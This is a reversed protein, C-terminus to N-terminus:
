EVILKKTTSFMQGQLRIFYIGSPYNRIDVEVQDTTVDTSYLIRGLYDVVSLKDVNLTNNIYVMENAPNPYITINEGKTSNVETPSDIIAVGAEKGNLYATIEGLQEKTIKGTTSKLKMMYLAESSNIGGTKTSYSTFRIRDNYAISMIGDTVKTKEFGEAILKASYYSEAILDLSYIDRNKCYIPISIVGNGDNMAEALNIVVAEKTSKLNRSPESVWSGDVDGLMVGHYLGGATINCLGTSTIIPQQCFDVNPIRFRYYGVGDNFPYDASISYEPLTLTQDDIFLWDKSPENALPYNWTQPYEDTARLFRNQIHTIDGAEITGNYNVDMAVAQYISPTFGTVMTTVQGTLYCDYGNIIPAVETSVPIDREINIKEGLTIDYEFYGYIDPVSAGFTEIECNTNAGHVFTPLYNAGNDPDYGIPSNADDWYILRGELINDDVIKAYGFDVCENKIELQYSEVLECSTFYVTKEKTYNSTLSFEVCAIEGSGTFQATPDTSEYFVSVYVKGPHDTHNIYYAADDSGRTVVRGISANGTPTVYTPDYEICFDMGIIGPEIDEKVLLPICFAPPDGILEDCSLELKGLEYKCEEFSSQIANPLGLNSIEGELYAYDAEYNCAAGLKNPEHIVDLYEDGPKNNYQGDKAIYIKEDPAIQFQGNKYKSSFTFQSAQIDTATLNFQYITNQYAEGAYLLNGNPSFELGKIRDYNNYLTQNYMIQGTENNFDLLDLKSVTHFPRVVVALKNGDPSMKMIGYVVPSHKTGASIRHIHSIGDESVLFVNFVDNNYEHNIIWFDKKNKHAVATLIESQRNPMLNVNKELFLINGSPEIKLRSYNLGNDTEKADTTIIYYNDNTGPKPVIMTGQAGSYHGLLDDAIENHNQDYVHVGETYFLLEGTRFDTMVACGERSQLKGDTLGIPPVDKTAYSFDLGAGDDPIGPYRGSYGGFYWINGRTHLPPGTSDVVSVYFRKTIEDDGMANTVKLTVNYRGPKNYQVTPNELTSTSPVGGPFDWQWSHPSGFSEDYFTITGNIYVAKRDSSFDAYVMREDTVNFSVIHNSETINMIPMDSDEGDRSKAGPTTEDTFSTVSAGFPDGAETATTQIGDAEEIDLGQNDTLNNIKNAKYYGNIRANDVHYILMGHGPLHEDWTGAIQQRNELMFVEDSTKTRFFYGERFQAINKLSYNGDDKLEKPELWGLSRKEWVNLAAPTKGYNNWSGAAMLDWHGTGTNDPKDDTDYFDPLGLMHGFEHCIVGISTIESLYTEPQIIYQSIKVGDYELKESSIDKNHSWIHDANGTSEQGPGQHIIAIGDVKGDRDNDFDSFDVGADEAAQIADKAFQLWKNSQKTGGYYSQSNPVTVWQTVTTNVVLEGYSNDRYYDKFSGTSGNVDYGEENMLAEFEEKTHTTTQDNFNALILLMKRTGSKPFSANVYGYQDITGMKLQAESGRVHKGINELFQEEKSSRESPNKAVTGSLVLKGGSSVEAYELVNNSNYLVTYGDTTELANSYEDGVVRVTVYQGNKQDHDFPYPSAPVYQVLRTNTTPFAADQCFALQFVSTLALIFIIKKM